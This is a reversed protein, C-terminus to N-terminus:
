AAVQHAAGLCPGATLLRWDSLGKQHPLVLHVDRSGAGPRAEDTPAVRSPLVEGAQFAGAPEEFQAAAGAGIQSLHRREGAVALVCLQKCGLGPYSIPLRDELPVGLVITM